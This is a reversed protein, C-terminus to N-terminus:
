PLCPRPDGDDATPSLLERKEIYQGRHKTPPSVVTAWRGPFVDHEICLPYGRGLWVGAQVAGRKARLM